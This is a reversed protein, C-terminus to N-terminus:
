AIFERIHRNLNEPKEEQLFHGADVEKITAEPILEKWRDLYEKKLFKDHSGWILMKPVDKLLGLKQKQEEYWDSSGALAQALHYPGTRDASKSFPFGYHKKLDSTLKKRDHFGQPLLVRSSFNMKYYLFRGLWSNVLRDIKQVAPDEQTSWLWTNLVVIRKIREPNQLAMGWGIPGGFDHVVLTINKLDLDNVLNSLQQAHFEPNLKGEKPKDSLGFGLHDPAICRYQDRFARIQDRYLFSWTPTGHIWLIPDGQGEDVYHLKGHGTNFYNETFPYEEANFWSNKKLPHM